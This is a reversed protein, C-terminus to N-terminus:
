ARWFKYVLVRRDSPCIRSVSLGVHPPDGAIKMLRGRRPLVAAVIETSDDNFVATAGSWDAKWDRCCYVLATHHRERDGPEPNLIDRHLRGETGFANASLVCEYLRVPFACTAAIAEWCTAISRLPEDLMKLKPAVDENVIDDASALPYYWQMDLEHAHFRISRNQFYMPIWATTEILEDEVEPPLFHDVVTVCSGFSQGIDTKESQM